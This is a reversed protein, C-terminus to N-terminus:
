EFCLCNEFMSNDVAKGLAAGATCGEAGGVIAAGSKKCIDITKVHGSQCM